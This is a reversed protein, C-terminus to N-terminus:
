LWADRNRYLGYAIGLAQEVAQADASAVAGIPKRDFPAVVTVDPSASTAGPIKLAYREMGRESRRKPIASLHHRPPAGVALWAGALFRSEPVSRAPRAGNGIQWLGRGCGRGSSTGGAMRRRM